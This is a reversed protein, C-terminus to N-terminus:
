GAVEERTFSEVRFLGDGIIRIIKGQRTGSEVDSNLVVFDGWKKNELVFNVAEWTPLDVNNSELISVLKEPLSTKLEDVTVISSMHEKGNVIESKGIDVVKHVIGCANCQVFKPTVTGQEDLVSFVVFKHRPPEKMNKFQSLICRCQILHKQGTLM